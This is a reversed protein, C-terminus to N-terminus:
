DAIRAKEDDDQARALRTCWVVRARSKLLKKILDFKDYDLLLVLRNECAREDDTESGLASLVDEAMKSSEAADSDTYGFAAAVQRQLWYADIDSPKVIDKDYEEGDDGGVDMGQVGRGFGAEEGAGEDDEEVDSAELVEDLENDEGNDEDEEEFEVAVGIDDDLTDGPVVDGEGPGGGPNFDTILKGVAVFQAFKESSTAGMLAEVNKKREPDTKHDDKLVELVEEAAGRLVDQPQDGFQGQIMGLLAEYAARTERTKPRYSGDADATLVSSVAQARGKKRRANLADLDDQDMGGKRRERARKKRDELEAPKDRHVRDGFQGPKIRGWLTEPEGTPEGTVRDKNDSTLM